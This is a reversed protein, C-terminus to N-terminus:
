NPGYYPQSATPVKLSGSSRDANAPIVYVQDAGGVNSSFGVQDNGVWTPFGDNASQDAPYNTLRNVARSFLDMVFTRIPGICNGGSLTQADFAV